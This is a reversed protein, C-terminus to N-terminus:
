ARRWVVGRGPAFLFVLVFITTAILVVAAGSAVNLYFSAYLGAMGSFAGILASVPFAEYVFRPTISLAVTFADVVRYDGRGVDDMEEIFSLVFTLVTLVLLTMLISKSVTIALYRDLLKM